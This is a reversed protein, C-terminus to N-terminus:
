CRQLCNPGLEVRDATDIGDKQLVTCVSNEDIGLTACVRDCEEKRLADTPIGSIQWGQDVCRIQLGSSKLVLRRPNTEDSTFCRPWKVNAIDDPSVGGLQAAAFLYPDYYDSSMREKDLMCVQYGSKSATYRGSAGERMSDYKVFYYRWDKLSHPANLCSDIVAQLTSGSAIDDLLARLHETVPHILEGKKGRFLPTRWEAIADNTIQLPGGFDEESSSCDDASFSV